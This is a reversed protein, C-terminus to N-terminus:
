LKLLRGAREANEAIRLASFNAKAATDAQRLLKYDRLRLESDFFGSNKESLQQCGPAKYPIIELSFPSSTRTYNLPLVGAKWAPYTPEIGM